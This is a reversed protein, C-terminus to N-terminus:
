VGFPLTDDGICLNHFWYDAQTASAVQSVMAGYEIAINGTRMWMDRESKVEIKKDQLMRCYTARAGQRIATSTMETGSPRSLIKWKIKGPKPLALTIDENGSRAM